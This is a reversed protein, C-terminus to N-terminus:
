IFFCIASISKAVGSIGIIVNNIYDYILINYPYLKHATGNQVM